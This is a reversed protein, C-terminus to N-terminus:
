LFYLLFVYIWRCMRQVFESRRPQIRLPCSDPLNFCFFNGKFIMSSTLSSTCFCLFTLELCWQLSSQKYSFLVGWTHNASWSFLYYSTMSSSSSLSLAIFVIPPSKKKQYLWTSFYTNYGFVATFYLSVLKSHLISYGSFGKWVRQGKSCGRAGFSTTELALVQHLSQFPLGGRHTTQTSLRLSYVLFSLFHILSLNFLLFVLSFCYKNLDNQLSIQILCTHTCKVHSFPM